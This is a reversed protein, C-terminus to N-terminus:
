GDPFSVKTSNIGNDWPQFSASPPEPAAPPALGQYTTIAAASSMGAGVASGLATFDIAMAALVTRMATDLHVHNDLQTKLAKYMTELKEVQAAHVAGDGIQLEATDDLGKIQAALGGGIGIDVQAADNAFSMLGNDKSMRFRYTENDGTPSLGRVNLEANSAVNVTVNGHADDGAPNELGEGTYEGSHARTTDIVYNGDKDVGHFTGRHKWIDPDGDALKLRQRHGSAEGSNGADARPHPVARIIVPKMLSDDLFTLLVHDGDLESADATGPDLPQGSLNQTAARPKWVHGTHMGGYPQSVLCRSLVADRLGAMSSYVLVDCYVAVINAFPVAEDDVQVYTAVVVGRLHLGNATLSSGGHRGGRPPLASSRTVAGGGQARNTDTFDPM